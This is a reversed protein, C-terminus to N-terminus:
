ELVHDIFYRPTVISINFYEGINLLHKDGSIIYSSKSAIACTIFKDDDPDQCVPKNFYYSGTLEAKILLM